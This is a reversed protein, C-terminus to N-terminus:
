RTLKDLVGLLQRERHKQDALRQKQEERIQDVVAKLNMRACRNLIESRSVQLIDEALLIGERVDEEPIFNFSKGLKKEASPQIQPGKNTKKVLAPIDTEMLGNM